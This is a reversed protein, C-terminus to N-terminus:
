HGAAAAVWGAVRDRSVVAGDAKLTETLAAANAGALDEASQIGANNLRQAMAPGIGKIDTLAPHVRPTASAEATEPADTAAKAAPASDSAKPAPDPAHDRDDRKGPMWWFALEMWRRMLDNWM